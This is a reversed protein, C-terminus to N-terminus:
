VDKKSNGWVLLQYANDTRGGGVDLTLTGANETVKIEGIADLYCKVMSITTFYSTLDLTNDSDATSATVIYLCSKGAVDPGQEKITDITTVVM